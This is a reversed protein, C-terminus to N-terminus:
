AWPECGEKKIQCAKRITICYGRNEPTEKPNRGGRITATPGPSKKKSM